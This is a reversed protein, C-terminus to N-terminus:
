RARRRRSVGVAAAVLLLVVLGLGANWPTVLATTRILLLAGGVVYGFVLLALVLRAGVDSETM